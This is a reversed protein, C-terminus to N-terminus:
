KGQGVLALPANRHHVLLGLHSTPHESLCVCVCVCWVGGLAECVPGDCLFSKVSAVSVILLFLTNQFASASVVTCSVVGPIYLSPHKGEGAILVQAHGRPPAPAYEESLDPQWLAVQVM